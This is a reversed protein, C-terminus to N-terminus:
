RRRTPRANLNRLRSQRRNRYEKILEYAIKEISYAEFECSPTTEEIYAKTIQWVHVAEHILTSVVDLPAEDKKFPFCVVCFRRRDYRDFTHTVACYSKEAIFEPRQAMPVRLWRMVSHFEQASMCLRYRVRAAMLTKDAWKM